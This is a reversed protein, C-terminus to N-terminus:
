NTVFMCWAALKKRSHIFGFTDIPTIASTPSIYCAHIQNCDTSQFLAASQCNLAFQSSLLAYIISPLLRTLRSWLRRDSGNTANKSLYNLCHRISLIIQLSLCSCLRASPFCNLWISFCVSRRKIVAANDPQFTSPPLSPSGVHFSEFGLEDTERRACRQPLPIIRWASMMLLFDCVHWRLCVICKMDDSCLSRFFASGWLWMRRYVDDVAHLPWASEVFPRSFTLQWSVIRELHSHFGDCLLLRSVWTIRLSSRRAILCSFRFCLRYILSFPFIPQPLHSSDSLSEVDSISMCYCLHLHNEGIFNVIPFPACIMGNISSFSAYILSFWVLPPNENLPM